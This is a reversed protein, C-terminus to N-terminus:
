VTFWSLSSSSRRPMGTLGAHYEGADIQHAALHHLQHLAALFDQLGIRGFGHELAEGRKGFNLDDVQVGGHAAAGVVFQHPHQGAPRRRAHAAPHSAHLPCAGQDLLPRTLHDHSGRREGFSADVLRQQGGHAVGDAALPEQDREIGFVAADDDLAPLLGGIEGSALHQAREVSRSQNRRRRAAVVSSIVAAPPMVVRSSTRASRAIPTWAAKPMAM